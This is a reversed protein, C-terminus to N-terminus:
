RGALRVSQRLIKVAGDRNDGGAKSEATAGNELDPYRNNFLSSGIFCSPSVKDSEKRSGRTTRTSEAIRQKTNSLDHYKQKRKQRSAVKRIHSTGIDHASSSAAAAARARAKHLGVKAKSLVISPNIKSQTSAAEEKRARELADPIYFEPRPPLSYSM